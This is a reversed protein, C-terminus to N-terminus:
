LLAAAQVVFLGATETRLRNAGLSLNVFGRDHALKVEEETFDGEPGILVLTSLRSFRADRIMTKEGEGLWAIFKQDAHASSLLDPLKVAENLAPIRAQLSQKVASLVLKELRDARMTTRESNKSYFFSLEDIGIEVAKEVMWELRDMQKTPAIALHLRYNRPEQPLPGGTLLAESKRDSVLQLRGDYFNGKGDIVRIEEGAKKRLVRACHWSEEAELIAKQDEIRALFINVSLLLIKRAGKQHDEFYGMM